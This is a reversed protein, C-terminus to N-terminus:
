TTNTMGLQIMIQWLYKNERPNDSAVGCGMGSDRENRM